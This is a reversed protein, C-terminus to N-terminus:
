SREPIGTLIAVAALLLAAGFWGAVGLHEGFLAVGLVTAGLPELLGVVAAGTAASRRLGATYLAYAAATPVAGLYLLFPWARRWLAATAAPQALLVPLLAAAGIAFTIAALASPEMRGSLRKTLVVYISYSLGALVALAAGAGFTPEGGGSGLVLLAGGAVGTLLAVAGRPGLHEGLVVRALLAVLVPASCITLLATAAVGTRPVASFYLLQYAGICLGAPLLEWGRPRFPARGVAGMVLLPAAVALRSAGTLLPASGATAGALKLTTGTTSWTLAAVAVLLLGAGPSGPM